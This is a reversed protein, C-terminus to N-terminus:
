RPGSGRVSVISPLRFPRVRVRQYGLVVNNAIDGPLERSNAQRFRLLDAAAPEAHELATRLVREIPGNGHLHQGSVEVVCVELPEHALM